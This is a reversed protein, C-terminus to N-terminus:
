VLAKGAPAGKFALCHRLGQYGDECVLRILIRQGPLRSGGDAPQQPAAQIPIRPPANLVDPIRADFDSLRM